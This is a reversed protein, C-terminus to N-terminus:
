SNAAEVKKELQLCMHVMPGRRCRAEEGYLVLVQSLFIGLVRTPEKKRERERDRSRGCSPLRIGDHSSEWTEPPSPFPPPPECLPAQHTHEPIGSGERVYIYTTHLHTHTHTHVCVNNSIKEKNDIRGKQADSPM